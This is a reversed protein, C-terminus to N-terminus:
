GFRVAAVSDPTVSPLEPPSDHPPLMLWDNASEQLETKAGSPALSPAFRSPAAASANPDLSRGATGAAFALVIGFAASSLSAIATPELAMPWSLSRAVGSPIAPTAPVIALPPTCARAF